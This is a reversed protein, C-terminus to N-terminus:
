TDWHFKARTAARWGRPKKEFDLMAALIAAM